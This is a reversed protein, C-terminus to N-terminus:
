TNRTGRQTLYTEDGGGFIGGYIADGDGRWFCDVTHFGSAKLAHFHWPLSMGQEVGREYTAELRQRMEDRNVKLAQAYANWFGNWDDVSDTSPTLMEDRHQEWAQQILSSDSGVHDANLFVGGPRLVQAVHGYLGALQEPALWHLATSSVVADFPTPVLQLWSSERLDAEILKVRTGFETLQMNGLLLLTPDVDIGIVQAQPFAELFQRTVGGPGCGLDLIRSVSSQTARVIRIMVAFREARDVLYCGQMREWRNVWYQWDFNSPVQIM